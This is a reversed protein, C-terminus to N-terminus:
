SPNRAARARRRSARLKARRVRRAVVAFIRPAGEWAVPCLDYSEADDLEIVFVEGSPRLEVDIASIKAIRVLVRRGHHRFWLRSGYQVVTKPLLTFGITRLWGLLYLAVLAILLRTLLEFGFLWWAEPIRGIAIPLLVVFYVPWSAVRVLGGTWDDPQAVRLWPRFM